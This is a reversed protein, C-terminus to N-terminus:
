QLRRRVPDLQVGPLNREDPRHRAGPCPDLDRDCWGPRALSGGHAGERQRPLLGAAGHDAEGGGRGRGGGQAGLDVGVGVSEGLEGPGDVVVVQRVPGGSDPGARQDHDVFCAHGVGEGQIGGDPVDEFTPRTDPQDTVVLLQRRDAGAADQTVDGGAVSGGPQVFEDAEGVGGFAAGAEGEAISGRLM